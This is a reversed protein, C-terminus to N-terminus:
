HGSSDTTAAEPANAAIMAALTARHRAALTRVEPHRLRGRYSDIMRVGDRLMAVVQAPSESMTAGNAMVMGGMSANAKEAPPKAAKLPRASYNDKYLSTLLALMERQQMDFQSDLEAPDAKKGHEGHSAPMMMADHAMSRIMEYHDVMSRLFAQDPGVAQATSPASRRLPQAGAAGAAQTALVAASLALATVTFRHRFQM